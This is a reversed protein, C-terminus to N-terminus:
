VGGATVSGPDRGRQNSGPFLGVHALRERMLEVSGESRRPPVAMVDGAPRLVVRCGLAHAWVMLAIPRIAMAAKEWKQISSGSVGVLEALTAVYMNSAKRRDRLTWALRRRELLLWSDRPLRRVSDHWIEGHRGEVVLQLGLPRPWEILHNLTPANIGKEWDSVASHWVPLAESLERQTIGADSRARYLSDIVGSLASEALDDVHLVMRNNGEAAVGLLM